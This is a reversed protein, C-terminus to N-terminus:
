TDPLPSATFLDRITCIYVEHLIYPWLDSYLKGSLEMLIAPVHTNYVAIVKYFHKDYKYPQLFTSPSPELVGVNKTSM